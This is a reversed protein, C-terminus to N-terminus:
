GAESEGSQARRAVYLSTTMNRVVRGGFDHRAIRGLEALVGDRDTRVNVDSYTGYLAVTQEPDLVLSWRSTLNEVIDFAGTRNMAAIRAEADLPFPVGREGASPSSPGGLLEKTAEHFPDPRSDDGFVNWIAASWGRPRLLGAIKALAAEEELWHFATASVGLDFRASDLQADEFTSVMVTLAPVPNHESLFSALRPDPEVAILPDAGMQLLRRTAKGTGAGIEFVAAGLRLGCRSRLTRYVWDPYDPRSAHYGAPDLGFARQGVQRPIAPETMSPDLILTPTREGGRQSEGFTQERVPTYHLIGASKDALRHAPPQPPCPPARTWLSPSASLFNTLVPSVRM